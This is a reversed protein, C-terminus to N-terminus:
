GLIGTLQLPAAARRRVALGNVIRRPTRRMGLCRARIECEAVLKEDSVTLDAEMLGAMDQVYNAGSMAVMM